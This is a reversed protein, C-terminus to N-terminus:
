RQPLRRQVVPSPLEEVSAYLLNRPGVVYKAQMIIEAQPLVLDSATAVDTLRGYM